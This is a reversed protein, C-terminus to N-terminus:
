PFLIDMFSLYRNKLHLLQKHQHKQVTLSGDVYKNVGEGGILGAEIDFISVVLTSKGM